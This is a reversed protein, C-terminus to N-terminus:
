STSSAKATSASKSSSNTVAAQPVPIILLTENMQFTRWHPRARFRSHLTCEPSRDVADKSYRAPVNANLPLRQPVRMSSSTTCIVKQKSKELIRMSSLISLIAKSKRKEPGRVSSFIELIVKPNMKRPVRMNWSTRHIVSMSVMSLFSMPSATKNVNPSHLRARRTVVPVGM